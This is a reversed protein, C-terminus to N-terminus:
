HIQYHSRTIFLPAHCWGNDCKTVSVCQEQQTVILLAYQFSGVGMHNSRQDQFIATWNYDKLAGKGLNGLLAVFTRQLIPKTESKQKTKHTSNEETTKNPKPQHKCIIESNMKYLFPDLLTLPPSRVIEFVEM